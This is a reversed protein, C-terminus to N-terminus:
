THSVGDTKTRIGESQQFPIVLMRCRQSASPLEPLKEAKMFIHGLEKYYVFIYICVRVCVTYTFDYINVYIYGYIDYIM